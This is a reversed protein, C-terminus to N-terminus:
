VLNPTFARFWLAYVALATPADGATVQFPVKSKNHRDVQRWRKAQIGLPRVLVRVTM